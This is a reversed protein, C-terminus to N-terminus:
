PTEDVDSLGASSWDDHAIVEKVISLATSSRYGRRILLSMLRRVRAQPELRSTASLKSRVLEAGRERETEDDITDLAEAAEDDDIGKARLEHRLSARATGRSRHRSGVWLRAYEADDILGVETFRDLVAGIVDEPVGRRGLDDALEKRTRPAASLRRLVVARALQEPDEIPAGSEEPRRGRGHALM